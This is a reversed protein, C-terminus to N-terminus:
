ESLFPPPAYEKMFDLVNDYWYVLNCKNGMRSGEDEFYLLQSPIGRRQMLNFASISQSDSFRFDNETHIFMTPTEWLSVNLLPNWLEYITPDQFEPGYFDYEPRWLEDIEYYMTRTDFVGGHSVIASFNFKRERSSLGNLFNVLYGGYGFGLGVIKDQNIISGYEYDNLLAEIGAAIDVAPKSGWNGQVSDIFEQGYGSSGHFNVVFVFYGAGALIQQSWKTMWADVYAVQPGGHVMIILPYKVSSELSTPRFLYSYVRKGGWGIFSFPRGPDSFLCKNLMKTNFSTIPFHNGSSFLEVEPPRLNESYLAVVSDEDNPQPFLDLVSHTGTSYALPIETKSANGALRFLTLTGESLVTFYLWKGRASWKMEAVSKDWNEGM